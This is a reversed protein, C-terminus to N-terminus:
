LSPFPPSSLSRVHQGAREPAAGQCSLKERPTKKFHHEKGPHMRGSGPEQPASRGDNGSRREPRRRQGREVPLQRHLHAGPVRRFRGRAPAAGEEDVGTASPAAAGRLPPILRLFTRGTTGEGVHATTRGRFAPTHPKGKRPFPGAKEDPHVHGFNPDRRWFERHGLSTSVSSIGQRDCAILPM